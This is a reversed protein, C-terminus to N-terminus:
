KTSIFQGRLPINTHATFVSQYIGGNQRNNKEINLKMTSNDFINKNFRPTSDLQLM